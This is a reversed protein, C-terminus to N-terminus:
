FIAKVKLASTLSRLADSHHCRLYQSLQLQFAKKVDKPAANKGFIDTSLDAALEMQSKETLLGKIKM